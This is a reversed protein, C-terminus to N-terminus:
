SRAEAFHRHAPVRRRRLGREDVLYDYGIKQWRRDPDLEQYRRLRAERDAPDIMRLHYLELDALPWGGLWQLQLPPRFPHVPRTDLIPEPVARFLRAVSKRKWRGDCRYHDCDGWLERFRVAYAAFGFRTGRRIVRNARRRFALELREDADLAMIWDPRHQAAAMVLRRWNEPEEWRPRSAPVRLVQLVAPHSELLDASGDTSGDDLAVIGDVQTAVNALFGPLFRAENRVPVLALLRPSAAQPWDPGGSPIVALRRLAALLLARARRPLGLSGHHPAPTKTQM